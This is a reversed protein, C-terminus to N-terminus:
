KSQNAKKTPALSASGGAGARSVCTKGTNARGDTLLLHYQPAVTHSRNAKRYCFIVPLIACLKEGICVLTTHGQLHM